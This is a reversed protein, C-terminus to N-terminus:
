WNDSTAKRTICSALRTSTDEISQQAHKWPNPFGKSIPVWDPHPSMQGMADATQEIGTHIIRFRGDKAEFTMKTHVAWTILRATYTTYNDIVIVGGADDRSLILPAGPRGPKMTQAICTMARAMIQQRTGTTTYVQSDVEDINAAKATVPLAVAVLSLAGLAARGVSKM